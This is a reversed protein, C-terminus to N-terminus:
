SFLERARPLCSQLGGHRCYNCDPGPGFTIEGRRIAHVADVARQLIEPCDELGWTAHFFVGAPSPLEAGRKRYGWLRIIGGPHVPEGLTQSALMAYASLQMAHVHLMEWGEPKGSKVDWVRLVGSEDRRLQDLTGAAFITPAIEGQVACEVREVAHPANRPDECYLSFFREVESRDALSARSAAANMADLPDLGLHWAAIGAHTVTGTDAAVGSVREETLLDLAVRMPCKAIADLSSPRLPKAQTGLLHLVDTGRIYFSQPTRTFRSSTTM